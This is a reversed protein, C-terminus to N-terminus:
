NTNHAAKTRWTTSSASVPDEGHVVRGHYGALGHGMTPRKVSIGRCTTLNKRAPILDPKLKLTERYFMESQQLNQTETHALAIQHCLKWDDPRARHQELLDVPGQANAPLSVGAFIVPVLFRVCRM